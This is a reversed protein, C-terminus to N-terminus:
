DGVSHYAQSRYSAHVRPRGGPTASEEADREPTPSAVPYSLRHPLQRRQFPRQRHSRGVDTAVRQVTETAQGFSNPGGTSWWWVAAGGAILGLLFLFAM